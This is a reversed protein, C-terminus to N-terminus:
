GLITDIATGGMNLGLGSVFLKGGEKLGRGILEPCLDTVGNVVPRNIFRNTSDAVGGNPVLHVTLTVTGGTDNHAGMAKFVRIIGNPITEGLQTLSGSLETSDIIAIPM